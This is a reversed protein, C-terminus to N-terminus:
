LFYIVACWPSIYLVGITVIGGKVKDKTLNLMIKESDQRAELKVIKNDRKIIDKKLDAVKKESKLLTDELEKTYDASSLSIALLLIIAVGRLKLM